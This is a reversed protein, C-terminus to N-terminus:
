GNAKKMAVTVVQDSVHALQSFKIFTNEMKRFLELKSFSPKHGTQYPPTFALLPHKKIITFDRNYLFKLKSASRLYMTYNNGSINVTTHGKLRRLSKGFAGKALYYFAESLCFRNLNAVVLLGNPKLWRSILANARLLQEDTLYSFGGTVSFILDFSNAEFVNLDLDETLGEYLSLRGSRIFDTYGEYAKNLMGKSGDLGTVKCGKEFFYPFDNGTGCNFDLVHTSENTDLYMHVIEHVLEKTLSYVGGTQPLQAYSQAYADWGSEYHYDRIYEFPKM